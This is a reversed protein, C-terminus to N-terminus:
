VTTANTTQLRVEHALAVKQDTDHQTKATAFWGNEFGESANGKPVDDSGDQNLPIWASTAM